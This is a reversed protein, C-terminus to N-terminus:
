ESFRKRYSTRDEDIAKKLFQFTERQEEEDEDWFSRLMELTKKIREEQNRSFFEDLSATLADPQASTCRDETVLPIGELLQSDRQLVDHYNQHRPMGHFWAPMPARLFGRDPRGAIEGYRTRIHTKHRVINDSAM